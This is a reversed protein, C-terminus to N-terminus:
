KSKYFEKKVRKIQEPDSVLDAVVMALGQAAQIMARFGQDSVAAKVFQPSHIPIGQRAVAVSAHM